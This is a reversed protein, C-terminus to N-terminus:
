HKGGHIFSFGFTSNFLCSIAPFDLVSLPINSFSPNRAKDTANIKNKYPRSAYVRLGHM